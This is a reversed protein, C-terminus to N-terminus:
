QLTAQASDNLYVKPFVRRYPNATATSTTPTVSLTVRVEYPNGAAEATFTIKGHYEGAALGEPAVGIRTQTPVAGGSPTVLLWRESAAAGWSIRQRGGAGRVYPFESLLQNGASRFQLRIAGAPASKSM